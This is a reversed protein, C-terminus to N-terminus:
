TAVHSHMGCRCSTHSPRVAARRTRVSRWRAGERASSSIAASWAFYRVNAKRVWFCLNPSFRSGLCPIGQYALSIFIKLWFLHRSFDLSRAYDPCTHFLGRRTCDARRTRKVVSLGRLGIETRAHTGLSVNTIRYVSEHGHLSTLQVHQVRREELPQSADVLECHCAKDIRPRQVCAKVVGQTNEVDSTAETVM